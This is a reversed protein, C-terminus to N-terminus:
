FVTFKILLHIHESQEVLLRNGMERARRLGGWKRLCLVISILGTLVVVIAGLHELSLFLRRNRVQLLFSSLVLGLSFPM